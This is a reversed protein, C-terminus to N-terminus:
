FFKNIEDELMSMKSKKVVVDMKMLKYFVLYVMGFNGKILFCIIIM